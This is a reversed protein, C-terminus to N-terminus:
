PIYIRLRIAIFGMSVILVERDIWVLSLSLFLFIYLEFHFTVLVLDFTGNFFITNVNLIARHCFSLSRCSVNKLKHMKNKM